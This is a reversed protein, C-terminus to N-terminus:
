KQKEKLKNIKSQDIYDREKKLTNMRELFRYVNAEKSGRILSVLATKAEEIEEASGIIGVENGNVVIDCGTIDEMTKRTKGEKGIVRGRVEKLNKRRTINKIPLKTFVTEEDILKIAKKASFGFSIAELVISAQYENFVSGEITAKRGQLTIKVGLKTELEERTRRIEGTKEFYITEM